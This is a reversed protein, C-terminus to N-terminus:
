VRAYRFNGKIEDALFRGKSPAQKIQEFIHPPVDFYDYTADGRFEVRMRMHESDYGVRTINSSDQTDIWEM